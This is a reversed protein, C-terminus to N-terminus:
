SLSKYELLKFVIWESIKKTVFLFSFVYCCNCIGREFATEQLHAKLNELLKDPPVLMRVVQQGQKGGINTLKDASM